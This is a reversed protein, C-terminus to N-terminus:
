MWYLYYVKCFTELFMLKGQQFDFKAVDSKPSSPQKNYLLHHSLFCTPQISPFQGSTSFHDPGCTTFHDQHQSITRIHPLSRTRMYHLSGSAPFNDPHPSTIQDAHLSTIRIYPFPGSAHFLPGSTLFHEPVIAITRMYHLESYATCPLLGSVSFHDPHLSTNRNCSTLPRSTALKEPHM